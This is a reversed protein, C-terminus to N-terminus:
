QLPSTSLQVALVLAVWRRYAAAQTVCDARSWQGKCHAWDQPSYDRQVAALGVLISGRSLLTEFVYAKMAGSRPERGVFSRPLVAFGDLRNRPKIQSFAPDPDWEVGIRAALDRNLQDGAREADAIGDTAAGSVWLESEGDSTRASCYTQGAHLEMGEPVVVTLGSGTHAWLDFGLADIEAEPIGAIRTLRELDAAADSRAALDAYSRTGIRRFQLDGCVTLSQGAPPSWSDRGQALAKPGALLVVLGLFALSRGRRLRKPKRQDASM